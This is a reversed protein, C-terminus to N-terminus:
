RPRCNMLEMREKDLYSMFQSKGRGEHSQGTSSEGLNFVARGAVDEGADSGDSSDDDSPEMTLDIYNGTGVDDDMTLDIYDRTEGETEMTLDVYDVTKEDHEHLPPTTNGKGIEPEALKMLLEEASCGIVESKVRQDNVFRVLKEFHRAFSVNNLQEAIQSARTDNLSAASPGSRYLEETSRQHPTTLLSDKASHSTDAPLLSRIASGRLNGRSSLQIDRSPTRVLVEWAKVGAEEYFNPGNLLAYYLKRAWVDREKEEKPLTPDLVRSVRSRVDADDERDKLEGVNPIGSDAKPSSKRFDGTMKRVATRQPQQVTKLSRRTTQLTM